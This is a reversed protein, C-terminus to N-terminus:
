GWAKTEMKNAIRINQMTQLLLDRGNRDITVDRTLLDLLQVEKSAAEALTRRGSSRM